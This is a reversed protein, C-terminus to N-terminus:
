IEDLLDYLSITYFFQGAETPAIVGEQVFFVFNGEADLYFDEEPYFGWEFEEFTMDAYIPSGEKQMDQEIMDWVMSRACADAKAIQRDILWEDTEDDQVIGLLYPLSTVTGAEAGTLAFTYARVIHSRSDGVTVIKDMRVSLAAESLHVVEYTINVLMQGEEAPHSSGIMPCEFGLADSVEYDFVNNITLALEEDGTVQPYAYRYVYSADAEGAGEPWTYVGTLDDTLTLPAEAVGSLPLFTLMLLLTLLRFM